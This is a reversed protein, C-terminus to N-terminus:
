IEFEKEKVIEKGDVDIKRILKGKRVAKERMMVPDKEDPPIEIENISVTHEIIVKKGDPVDWFFDGKVRDFYSMDLQMTCLKDDIKEASKGPKPM